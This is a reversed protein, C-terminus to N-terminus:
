KKNILLSLNNNKLKLKRDSFVVLCEGELRSLNETSFYIDLGKFNNMNMLAKTSYIKGTNEEKRCCQNGM